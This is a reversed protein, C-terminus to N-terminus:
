IARAAAFAQDETWAAGESMLRALESEDFAEHLRAMLMDHPIQETPGYQADRAALRARAFGALRAARAADIAVSGLALFEITYATISPLQLATADALANRASPLAQAVDDQSLAYATINSYLVARLPQPAFEIGERSLATAREFNHARAEAEAWWILNFVLMDSRGSGHLIAVAEEFLARATDIEAPDLSSGYHGLTDAILRRDGLQRAIQVAEAGIARAAEYRSVQSLTLALSNLARCLALPEDVTRYREVALEGEAIARRLGGSNSCLVALAHRLRAETEAPLPRGVNLAMECWRIGEDYLSLRAFFRYLAGTAAAGAQADNREVLAWTLAFRLNDLEPALSEVWGQQEKSYASRYISEAIGFFYSAHRRLVSDADTGQSLLQRAYQRISELLRYRQHSGSLETVVLSKDVLASLLDLVDWSEIDDDACIESAAELTWGGAFVAVRRFIAKERDSLLDYSWDILARMTQQRPLASRSGGTLIRFREDLRQSLQEVALVKVRPAALEIALAIGDLRRCIDAVVPANDDTLNFRADAATARDAFLAISEYAAADSARLNEGPPPVQLSPMRYVREGSVNLGERSTVILKVHPCGHLITDVVRAAEAVVHECNDLVLLLRREKLYALVVDLVPRDLAPPVCLASGVVSAVLSVDSLPALDVFWVGDGSGDLLEAAVQLATRTKGVGGTGVLTVLRSKELLAIIEAVQSERGVFSTLQLPLNNPLADLSRLPPFDTPLDPAVLQYVQEPNTLDKLRHAGLDRLSSQAPMEGQVLDATIGSAVVQGGHAIALLRAVRNVAPGFYDGDREDTAGTHLAMRVRLGDTASWDQAGISRQADLAAAVANPANWFVACFADGVTKFVYGDRAAIAEHMLADHRRVADQMAARHQDWRQTSGEIDSFLFTVTGTPRQVSETDSSTVQARM